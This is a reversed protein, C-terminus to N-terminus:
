FFAVFFLFFFFVFNGEEDGEEEEMWDREGGVWGLVYGFLEGFDLKTPM